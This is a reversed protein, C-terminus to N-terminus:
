APQTLGSSNRKPPVANVTQPVLWRNEQNEISGCALAHRSIQAANQPIGAANNVSANRAASSTSRGSATPIRSCGVTPFCPMWSTVPLRKLRAM